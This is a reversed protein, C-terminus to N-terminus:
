ERRPLFRDLVAVFKHREEVHPVHGSDEFEVFEARLLAATHRANEIAIPDHVGHLVLTPVAVQSLDDRMDYDRLSEWVEQQTRFTVRFPTLDPSREFDKFYGAVSLEFARKWYADPDRDKLGSSKLKQRARLVEPRNMRENFRDNFLSRDAANTSAPAVLALREVRNPHKVTFLMALLAGWSYGLLIARDLQWYDLLAELDAVHETWGVPVDRTVTSQGGGRQDYYRLRRGTAFADYQPLLYDHHAGPGGHLVVIDVGDGVTRTFLRVGNVEVFDIVPHHEVTM